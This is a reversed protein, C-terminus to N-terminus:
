NKHKSVDFYNLDDFFFEVPNQKIGNHLIEYHLHPGSSLGSSGSKGILDGRSIKQGEKVDAKSLHAYISKYGFGHDIEIALGLGGRYGVFEIKGNGSAHVPTGSDTIIDVGEHMRKINLIPHVRMGFGHLALTGECPKIAPLSEFLKKNDKLKESIDLYQQKEFNIKRNVEDMYNIAKQLKLSSNDSLFDLANDFSGGGVGVLKEDESIPELNAAIRLENNSALLSDLANNLSQYEVVIKDLKEQLVQNEKSLSSYNDIGFWSLAFSYVTFILAVTCLVVFSLLGLLKIKYHSVENFKLKLKSFYYLKKM